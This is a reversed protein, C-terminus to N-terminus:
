HEKSMSKNLALTLAISVNTDWPDIGISSIRRDICEELPDKVKSFSAVLGSLLGQGGVNRLLWDL